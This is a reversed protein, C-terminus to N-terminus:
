EIWFNGIMTRYLPNVWRYKQQNLNSIGTPNGNIIHHDSANDSGEVNFLKPRVLGRVESM